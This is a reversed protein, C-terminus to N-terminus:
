AQILIPSHSRKYGKGKQDDREEPAMRETGRVAELSVMEPLHLGGVARFAVDCRVSGRRAFPTDAKQLPLHLSSGADAAHGHEVLVM